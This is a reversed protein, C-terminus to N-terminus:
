AAQTPYEHHARSFDWVADWVGRDFPDRDSAVQAIVSEPALGQRLQSLAWHYGAYHAESAQILSRRVFYHRIPNM